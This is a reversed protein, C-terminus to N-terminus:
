PLWSVWCGCRVCRCVEINRNPRLEYTVSPLLSVAICVPAVIYGAVCSASVLLLIQITNCITNSITNCITCIM